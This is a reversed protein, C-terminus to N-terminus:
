TKRKPTGHIYHDHQHALDRIGTSIQCSNTIDELEQWFSDSLVEKPLKNIPEAYKLPLPEIKKDM